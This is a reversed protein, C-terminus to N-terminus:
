IANLMEKFLRYLKNEFSSVFYSRYENFLCSIYVEDERGQVITVSVSALFEKSRFFGNDEMLFHVVKTNDSQFEDSDVLRAYRLGVEKIYSVVGDFDGLVIKNLKAM